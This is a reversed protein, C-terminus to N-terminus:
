AIQEWWDETRYARELVGAIAVIAQPLRRCSRSNPMGVELLEDPCDQEHFIRSQLLNWSESESFQRLHHPKSDPKAKLALSRGLHDGAGTKWMDDMVILYTKQKLIQYLMLELDANAMQLIGASSISVYSLIELLLDRKNYVQSLHCWARVHFCYSVKPDTFVKKAM